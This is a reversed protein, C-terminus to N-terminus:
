ARVEVVERISEVTTAGMVKIRKGPSVIIVKRYSKGKIFEEIL